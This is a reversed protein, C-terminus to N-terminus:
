SRYRNLYEIAAQLRSVEDKLLGIAMNCPDCLLGRNKGSLHDHDVGLRTEDPSPLGCIACLGKQAKFLADYEEVSM